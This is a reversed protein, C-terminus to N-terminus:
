SCRLPSDSPGRGVTVLPLLRQRTPRQVPTSCGFFVSAWSFTLFYVHPPVLVSHKHHLWPPRAMALPRHMRRPLQATQWPTSASDPSNAEADGIYSCPTSPFVPATDRTLPLMVTAACLTRCSRASFFDSQGCVNGRLMKRVGLQRSKLTVEIGKNPSQEADINRLFLSDNKSSTARFLQPM